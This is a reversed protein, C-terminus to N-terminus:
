TMRGQIALVMTDCNISKQAAIKLKLKHIQTPLVLNKVALPFVKLCFCNRLPQKQVQSDINLAGCDRKNFRSRGDAQYLRLSLHQMIKRAIFTMRTM